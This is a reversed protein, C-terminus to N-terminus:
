SITRKIAGYIPILLTFYKLTEERDRGEGRTRRLDKRMRGQRKVNVMSVDKWGKDEQSEGSGEVQNRENYRRKM